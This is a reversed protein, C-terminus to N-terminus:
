RLIRPTPAPRAKFEERRQEGETQLTQSINNWIGIAAFSIAIWYAMSALAWQRQYKASYAFSAGFGFVPLAIAVVWDNRDLASLETNRGLHLLAVLRLLLPIITLIAFFIVLSPAGISFLIDTLRTAEAKTLLSRVVWPLSIFFGFIPTFLLWFAWRKWVYWYWVATSPNVIMSGVWLIRQSRKSHPTMGAHVMGWMWFVGYIVVSIVFLPFAFHRFM